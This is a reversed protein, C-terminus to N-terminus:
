KKNIETILDDYKKNNEERLNKLYKENSYFEKEKEKISFGLVINRYKGSNSESNDENKKQLIGIIPKSFKLDHYIGNIGIKFIKKIPSVNSTSGNMLMDMEYGEYMLSSLINETIKVKQNILIIYMLTRLLNMLYSITDYIKSTTSKIFTLYVKGIDITEKLKEFLELTFKQNIFKYCSVIWLLESTALFCVNKLTAQHNIINELTEISIDTKKEALEIKFQLVTALTGLFLNMEASKDISKMKALGNINTEEKYLDIINDIEEKIEPNFGSMSYFTFLDKFIIFLLNNELHTLLPNDILNNLMKLINDCAKAPADKTYKKNKPVILSLRAKLYNYFPLAFRHLNPVKLKEANPWDYNSLIESIHAGKDIILDTIENPNSGNLKFSLRHLFYQYIEIRSKEQQEKSSQPNKTWTKDLTDNIEPNLNLPLDSPKIESIM